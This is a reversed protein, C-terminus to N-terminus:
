RDYPQEEMPHSPERTGLERRLAALEERLAQVERKLVDTQGLAGQRRLEERHPRAPFGSVFSKPPIDKTVGARALVWTDAGITLHGAVGVQGAITVRDGVTVSGSLGTQSVILVDEGIQDNHGVHVLNDLKTGRGIVTSGFTGRDIAVNAGTEVDDGLVVNGLQPIKLHRGREDPTFGYGDSGVVTGAHLIVRHGLRVGDYLVVHPHLLCDEGVEVNRGVAVGAHLVTRAGVRAGAGVTVYPGLAATPDVEAGPHVVATPHHGLYPSPPMFRTLIRAMAVRPRKVVIQPRPDELPQGTVIAASRSVLTAAAYKPELLFVLDGPGADAPDAVGTIRTTPDGHLQGEVLLALEELTFEPM